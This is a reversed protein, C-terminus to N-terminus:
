LSLSLLYSPVWQTVSADRVSVTVCLPSLSLFYRAAAICEIRASHQRALASLDSYANEMELNDARRSALSDLVLKSATNLSKAFGNSTVRPMPARCLLKQIISIDLQLTGM